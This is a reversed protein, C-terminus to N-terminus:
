ADHLHVKPPSERFTTFERPADAGFHRFTRGIKYATVEAPHSEQVAGDFHITVRDLHEEVSSVVLIEQPDFPGSLIMVRDGEKLDAEARTALDAATGLRVIDLSAAGRGIPQLGLRPRYLHFANFAPYAEIAATSEFLSPADQTELQAEFPFGAPVVVPDTGDIELAFLAAGGLGPAPRYGTIRILDAVSESWDATGLKTENGYLQQYFTLIDGIIATGELLAIGPEDPGFHTWGSLAPEKALRDLMHARMKAYTGIRYGFHSLGPRNHIESPFVPPRDCDHECSM